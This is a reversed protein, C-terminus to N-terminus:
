KQSLVRGVKVGVDEAAMLDSIIAAGDDGAKWVEAVNSETIGGIGVVPIKVAGRIERLM